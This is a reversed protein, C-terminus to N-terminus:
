WISGIEASPSDAVNFTGEKLEATVFLSFTKIREINQNLKHPYNVLSISMTFLLGFIRRYKSSGAYTGMKRVTIAM